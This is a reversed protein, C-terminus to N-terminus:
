KNAQHAKIKEILRAKDRPDPKNHDVLAYLVTQEAQNEIRVVEGQRELRALTNHVVAGPNVYPDLDLGLGALAGRIDTVSMPIGSNALAAKVSNTIGADSAPQQALAALAAIVASGSPGLKPRAKVLRSLGDATSKLESLRADIKSREVVLEAIEEQVAALAREYEPKIM